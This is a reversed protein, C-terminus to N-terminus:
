KIKKVIQKSLMKALFSKLSNVNAKVYYDKKELKHYYKYDAFFSEKMNINSFLAKQINFILLRKFNPTNEKIILKKYFELAAKKAVNENKMKYQEPLPHVPPTSANAKLISKFGLSLLIKDLYNHVDKHGIGGESTLILSDQNFFEPRHCIYAIRDIFNKLLSPVNVAYVPSSFIIAGSSHMQKLIKDRDDKLPCFGKGKAICAYCGLCQKLKADKLFLYEFKIKTIKNLEEEFQKTFQYTNGKKRPSGIIALIKM